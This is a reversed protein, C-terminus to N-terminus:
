YDIDTILKWQDKITKNNLKYALLEDTDKFKKVFDYNGRETSVLERRESFEAATQDPEILWDKGNLKFKIEYGIDILNQFQNLSKLKKM